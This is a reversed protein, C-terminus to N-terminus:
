GQFCPARRDPLASVQDHLEERHRKLVARGPASLEPEAADAEDFRCSDPLRIGTTEAYGADEQLEHFLAARM